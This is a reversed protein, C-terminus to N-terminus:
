RLNECIFTSPARRHPIVVVAARLVPQRIPQAAPCSKSVLIGVFIGVFNGGLAKRYTPFTIILSSAHFFEPFAQNAKILNSLGQYAQVRAPIPSLEDLSKEYACASLCFSEPSLIIQPAAQPLVGV